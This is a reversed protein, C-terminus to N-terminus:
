IVTDHTHGLENKHGRMKSKKILENVKHAKTTLSLLGDVDILGM